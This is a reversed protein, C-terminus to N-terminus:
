SLCGELVEPKSHSGKRNTKKPSLLRWVASMVRERDMKIQYDDVGAEVGRRQDEDSALSTLAIVPLHCTDSNSKITRTLEFGNMFPMEIDTIVLDVKYEGSKLLEWAQAGDEAEIISFGESELYDKAQKRFFSSDEALLIQFPSEEDVTVKPKEAFWKPHASFALEYLDVIRITKDDVVISGAIGPERFTNGDIEAAVERIDNLEAAILGVERGHIQFVVVHVYDMAPRPQAKIHAEITLLPLSTGRYQLLEQGGVTDIQETRIREIRSILSMPVAFQETPANTFMLLSQRESALSADDQHHEKNNEQEHSRLDTKAAIGSVDLIPAVHGDGLITAGALCGCSKLHRGLPKVVIEESDDIEDVILGYRFQGSEVVVIQRAGESDSKEKADAFNMAQDLDVLPLLSGRLRLVRAGKVRSIRQSSESARVRVLEVINVQPIAFRRNCSRILMSPIIALTLPLTIQVSTGQGLTSEIDVSGGIKEINTRVVDMGVGRGSVDSIKEATSFGPHFILWVAERDSMQSAREATIIGKSVAKEKLRNTDIGGGDDCIDIRVKGAQHYARLTVTGAPEKQTSMRKEPMEIGHDVSNRVMHTLPDGIAEIITKDVEVEGGEMVVNCQKGLKASLDRVVRPFKNFVNGIPQMRTQMIAEQLESTVQDLRAAVAQMSTGDANNVTQLLQNRGLVLEGALNMLRDLVGVQVRISSEVQSTAQSRQAVATEKLPEDAPLSKDATESPAAIKDVIADSDDSQHDTSAQASSYAGDGEFIENLLIVHASVDVANSNEIDNILGSLADAGKLMVDVIQSNPTLEKTRMKGLVNELAHALENVRVLGMFGAAGKISHIARFVKNVLDVDINAGNAEIELLQGEVDALHERSETVFEALLAPDDFPM